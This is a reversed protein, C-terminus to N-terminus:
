ETASPESQKRIRELQGHIWGIAGEETRCAAIGSADSYAHFSEIYIAGDREARDRLADGARDWYPLSGINGTNLVDLSRFMLNRIAAPHGLWFAIREMDFVNGPEAVTVEMVQNGGGSIGVPLAIAVEIAYGATNLTQVLAAIAAARRELDKADVSCSVFGNITLKILQLAPEERFNLACYPHGSIVASMDWIPGCVDAVIQQQPMELAFGSCKDALQAIYGSKAKWGQVGMVLSKETSTNLNWERSTYDPMEYGGATAGSLLSVLGGTTARIVKSAVVGEWRADTEVIVTSPLATNYRALKSM